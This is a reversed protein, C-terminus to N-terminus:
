RNYPNDSPADKGLYGDVAGESVKDLVKTTKGVVEGATEAGKNVTECGLLGFIFILIIVTLKTRM